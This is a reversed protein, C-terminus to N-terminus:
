NTGVEEVETQEQGAKELEELDDLREKYLNPIATTYEPDKEQQDLGIYDQIRDLLLKLLKTRREDSQTLFEAAEEDNEESM